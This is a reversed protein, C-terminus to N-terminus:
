KWKGRAIWYLPVSRTNGGNESRALVCGSTSVSSILPATDTAGGNYAINYTAQMNTPNTIFSIPFTVALTSNQGIASSLGWCEMTGDAFQIYSGYSNSGSAYISPGNASITPISSSVDNLKKLLDLFCKSIEAPDNTAPLMTTSYIM